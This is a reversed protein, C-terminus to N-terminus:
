RRVSSLLLDFLIRFGAGMGQGFEYYRVTVPVEEYRLGLRAVQRDLQTQFAYRDYDLHMRALAPVSFARFGNHVDSLSLGTMMRELLRAPKHIMWRKLFPVARTPAGPLFRSGFVAEARGALIPEVVRPVEAADFQGDGDFMVAVDYGNKIAWTFGTTITAGYGRNVAHRVVTAGAEAAVRATDDSSGDDVAVVADVRQLLSRVVDGVRHAVNWCPVVAVVRMPM